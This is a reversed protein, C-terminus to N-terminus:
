LMPTFIVIEPMKRLIPMRYVIKRAHFGRYFEDDPAPVLIRVQKRGIQEIQSARADM